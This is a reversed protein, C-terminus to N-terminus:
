NIIALNILTVVLDNKLVEKNRINQICNNAVYDKIGMIRIM